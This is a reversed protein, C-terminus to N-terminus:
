PQPLIPQAQDITVSKVKSHEALKELVSRKYATGSFSSLSEWKYILQFEDPTLKLEALTQELSDQLAVIIQVKGHQSLQQYVEDRIKNSISSPTSQFPSALQPSSSPHPSNQFLSPLEIQKETFIIFAGITTAIFLAIILLIGIFMLGQQYKM